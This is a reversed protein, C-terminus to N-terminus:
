VLRNRNIVGKMEGLDGLLYDPDTIIHSLALMRANNRQLLICVKDCLSSLMIVFFPRRQLKLMRCRKKPKDKQKRTRM